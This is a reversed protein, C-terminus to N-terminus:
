AVVSKGGESESLVSDDEVGLEAKPLSETSVGEYLRLLDHAVTDPEATADNLYEWTLGYKRYIDVVREFVEWHWDAEPTRHGVLSSGVNVNWQSALAVVGKSVLQEIGELLSEKPELGSVFTSRVRFKGFVNLEEDLAKLWNDQGGCEIAKGPCIVNFINRDWIELNTAITRFGADKYKAFVDLDKPAGICATGNFDELGTADIIADAADIYYDVERREPIFGGSITLKNFGDKYGEKVTEAIQNPTKWNICQAEGYLAKTENINCFLCDRGKDKLSCENSYSIFMHGYGYDGAVTRMLAGDSTKKSYYAARRSFTVNELVVGDYVHRIQFQNGEYTLTYPSSQVWRLEIRYKGKPTIIFAPFDIGTHAHHDAAFLINVQETYKTGLEINKFIDPNFRVGEVLIQNKIKIEDYLEKEFSNLEKAM